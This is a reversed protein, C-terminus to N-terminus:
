DEFAPIVEKIIPRIDDANIYAIVDKRGKRQYLKAYQKTKYITLDTILTKALKYLDERNVIVFKSGQLFAIKDAGGKLWGMKGHVNRLELWIVDTPFETRRHLRKQTKVDYKVGDCVIDFHEHINEEETAYRIEKCRKSMREYFLREAGEGSIDM